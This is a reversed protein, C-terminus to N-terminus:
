VVDAGRQAQCFTFFDTEAMTPELSVSPSGGWVGEVQVPSPLDVCSGVCTCTYAGECTM